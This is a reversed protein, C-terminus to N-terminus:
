DSDVCILAENPCAEVCAPIARDPCLDCKAVVGRSLDRAIAGYPCALICTWCGICRDADVQISSTYRDRHMAGTLCAYVCLPEDCHRCATAVFMPPRRDVRIRALPAPTESLFARLIDKSRSHEVRCGVECLGCGMCIEELPYVRRM